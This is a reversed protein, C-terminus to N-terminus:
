FHSTRSKQSPRTAGGQTSHTLHHWASLVPFDLIFASTAHPHAPQTHIHQNRTSTSALRSLFFISSWSLLLSRPNRGQSYLINVPKIYSQMIRTSRLYVYQSSAIPPSWIAFLVIHQTIVRSSPFLVNLLEWGPETILDFCFCFLSSTSISHSVIHFHHLSQSHLHSHFGCM